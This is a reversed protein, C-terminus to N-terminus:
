FLLEVWKEWNQREKTQTVIPAHQLREPLIVVTEGSKSMGLKDRATKEVYEDSKVYRNESLLREREIKLKELEIKAAEVRDGGRSLGGLSRITNVILGLCIFLILYFRIRNFDM